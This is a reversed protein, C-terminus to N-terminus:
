LLLIKSLCQGREMNSFGKIRNLFKLQKDLGLNVQPLVPNELTRHPVGLRLKYSEEIWFEYEYIKSTVNKKDDNPELALYQRHAQLFLNQPDDGLM